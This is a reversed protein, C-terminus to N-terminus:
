CAYQVPAITWGYRKQECSSLLARAFCGCGSLILSQFAYVKYMFCRQLVQQIASQRAAQQAAYINTAAGPLATTGAAPTTVGGPQAALQGQCQGAFTAGKHGQQLGCLGNCIANATM